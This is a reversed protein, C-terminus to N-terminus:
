FVEYLVSDKAQWSACVVNKEQKIKPRCVSIQYALKSISM